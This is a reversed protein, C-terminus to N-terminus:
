KRPSSRQRRVQKGTQVIAHRRERALCVVDLQVTDTSPDAPDLNQSNTTRVDTPPPVLVRRGDDTLELKVANFEFGRGDRPLPGESQLLPWSVGAVFTRLMDLLLVDGVWETSIVTGVISATTAIGLSESALLLKRELRSLGDRTDAHEQLIEEITARLEPLARLDTKLLGCLRMPSPLRFAHWVKRALHVQGPTITRRAVFAQLLQETRLRGGYASVLSLRVNGIKQEGFWSLLQVLSLQCLSTAGFWLVIEEYERYRALAADRKDFESKSKGKTWFLSRRQSLQRLGLGAPVPGCYLADRWCLIEGKKKLGALRLGGGTSDGDVIHLTRGM